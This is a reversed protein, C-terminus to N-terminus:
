ALSRWAVLLASGGVVLFGGFLAAGVYTIRENPGVERRLATAAGVLLLLAGAVIVAVFEWYWGSRGIALAAVGTVACALAAMSAAAPGWTSRRARATTAVGTATALAAPLVALALADSRLRTSRLWELGLEHNRTALALAGVAVVGVMAALARRAHLELLQLITFTCALWAAVVATIAILGLM